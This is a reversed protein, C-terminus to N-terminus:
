LKDIKLQQDPRTQRSLQIRIINISLNKSLIKKLINKTTKLTYLVKIQIEKKQFNVSMNKKSKKILIINKSLSFTMKKILNKKAKM